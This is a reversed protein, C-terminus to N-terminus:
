VDTRPPRPPPVPDLGGPGVPHCRILRRLTLWGGAWLGHVRLAEIAYESCSPHFKCSGILWPRILAQYGRILL